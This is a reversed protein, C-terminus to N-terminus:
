VSVVTGYDSKEMLKEDFGFFLCRRSTEAVFKPMQSGRKFMRDARKDKGLRDVGRREDGSV